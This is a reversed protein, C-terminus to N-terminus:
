SPECASEGPGSGPRVWPRRGLRELVVRCLFVVNGVFYRHWMRRPEQWFRFVWELAMERMWVPARPIRGSYFDFLGGVGMAIRVNLATRHQAVWLDQRPAGFAVLLVDANSRAIEEIVAEEEEPQFYGHHFGAIRVNPSHERIWEVVLEPVGPRAGLLYISGGAQALMECLRPFLDTGNVNQRVPRRLIRGALKMGIGDALVLDSAALTSRYERSRWARNACDANLFSIQRTENGLRSDEIWELVETMTRNEIRIGQIQFTYEFDGSAGGYLAAPVARALIGLDNLLGHSSVYESDAAWETGYAINARQRIWWLGILGPRVDARRWQQRVGAQLSEPPIPRPGVVALDGRLVNFLVPLRHLRLAELMRSLRLPPLRFSVLWISEGWRGVREERIFAGRALLLLPVLIPTCIALLVLAVGVDFLRKASLALGVYFRWRSATLWRRSRGRLGAASSLRSSLDEIARTRDAGHLPQGPDPPAPQM